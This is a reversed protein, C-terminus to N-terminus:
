GDGDVLQKRLLPVAFEFGFLAPNEGIVAASVVSLVYGYTERPIKERHETLLKWFNRERPSEPMSRILRVVNNHGWNYSAVVLLGSAQADTAYIDRLYQAAARTSKEFDHREDLPDPRRVGVLPGTQLGLDRATGPLLQWMGKAIGYRTERGVADLKFESEQLALYLFEPPLDVALMMGAIRPAYNNRQSRAISGTLRNSLRWREIYRSVEKVFDRPVNVESEGFRRVVQYILREEEPTKDSYIGLEEVYDQYRSQLAARQVRYSAMERASLQLQVVELELSKFAYFLEAAAARQREIIRRQMFAYGSVGVALALVVLLAARYKKARKGLEREFVSRVKATHGGIDDPPHDSLYRQVIQAESLESLLTKREDSHTGEITLVLAPGAHGLRAHVVRDLQYREVRRGAVIIGNTSGLDQIWWRRDKLVVEAHYRSVMHGEVVVDNDADRGISFSRAFRAVDPEGAIQVLIIPEDRAPTVTKMLRKSTAVYPM